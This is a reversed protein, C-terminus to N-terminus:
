YAGQGAFINETKLPIQRQWFCVSKIVKSGIRTRAVRMKIIAAILGRAWTVCFCVARNLRSFTLLWM